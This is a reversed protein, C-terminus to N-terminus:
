CCSRVMMLSKLASPTEPLCFRHNRGNPLSSKVNHRFGKYHLAHTFELATYDDARL